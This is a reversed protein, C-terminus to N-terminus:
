ESWRGDFWLDPHQWTIKRLSELRKWDMKRMTEPTLPIDSVDIVWDWRLISLDEEVLLPAAFLPSV